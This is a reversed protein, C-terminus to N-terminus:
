PKQRERVKETIVNLITQAKFSLSLSLGLYVMPQTGVKM